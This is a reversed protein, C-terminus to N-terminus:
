GGNTIHDVVIFLMRPYLIGTSSGVDRKSFCHPGSQLLESNHVLELLLGQKYAALVTTGYRIKQVFINDFDL